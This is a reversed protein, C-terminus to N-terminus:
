VISEDEEGDDDRTIDILDKRDQNATNTMYLLLATDISVGHEAFIPFLHKRFNPLFARWAKVSHQWEAPDDLEDVSYPSNSLPM